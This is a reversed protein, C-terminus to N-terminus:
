CPTGTVTVTTAVQGPQLSANVTATRDGQVLIKSHIETGFGDRSFTLEYTGIPLDSVRYFGDDKTLVTREDNTALNRIRVTAKQLVAGSSDVVTGNISGLTQQAYCSLVVLFLNCVCVALSRILKAM